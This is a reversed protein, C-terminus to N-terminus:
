KLFEKVEKKIAISAKNDIRQEISLIMLAYYEAKENRENTKHFVFLNYLANIRNPLTYYAKLYHEEAKKLDIEEYIKGLLIHINPDSSFNLARELKEKALNNQNSRLLNSGYFFLYNGDNRFYFEVKEFKENARNYQGLSSTRIAEYKINHKSYVNLLFALYFSSFVFLLVKLYKFNSNIEIFRHRNTKSSFMGLIFLFIIANNPIHLPFSFFALMSLSFVVYIFISKITNKGIDKNNQYIYFCILVTIIFYILGFEYLFQLYENHAYTVYGALDYLYPETNESYYQMQAISYDKKFSNFGHGLLLDNFSFMKMSIQWIRIRGIFSSLDIVNFFIIAVLGQLLIYFFKLRKNTLYNKFLILSSVALSTALAANSSYFFMVVIGGFSLFVITYFLYSYSYRILYKISSVWIIVNICIFGSLHNPNTFGFTFDGYISYTNFSLQNFLNYIICIAAPLTILYIVYIDLQKKLYFFLNKSFFYITILGIFLFFDLNNGDGQIILKIVPLLM